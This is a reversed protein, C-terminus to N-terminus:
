PRLLVFLPEWNSAEEGRRNTPRAPTRTAGRRLGYPLSLLFLFCLTPITQLNHHTGGEVFFLLSFPLISLGSCSSLASARRMALTEFHIM